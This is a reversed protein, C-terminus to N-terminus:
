QPVLWGDLNRGTLSSLKRVDDRYAECIERKLGGDIEVRPIYAKNLRRIASLIGLHEIGIIKKSAQALRVLSVPPRETFDAIAGLRHRKRENVRPFEDRSDDQIDLFAEVERFVRGADATFDDFFIIKLQAAPFHRRWRELQEGMRAVEDYWLVKGDRCHRPVGDGRKRSDRLRWATRLDRVDEDRSYLLQSHLSAVLEVPNRLMVIIRAEPAFAAVQIAADRSYLYFVSAEGVRRQRAAASRFLDLYEQETWVARYGPMDLAFYHPEKPDSMFVNSHRRLYESLATTGCKPAGV